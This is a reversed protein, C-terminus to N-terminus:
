RSVSQSTFSLSSRANPFQLFLVNYGARRLSRALRTEWAPWLRSYTGVVIPSEPRILSVLAEVMHRCVSTCKPFRLVCAPLTSYYGGVSTRSIAAEELSLVIPVTQPWIVSVRLSLGEILAATRKIAAVTAALSTFIIAIEPDMEARNCSESVPSVASPQSTNRLQIVRWFPKM